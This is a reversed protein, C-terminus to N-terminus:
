ATGSHQARRLDLLTAMEAAAFALEAALKADVGAATICWWDAVRRRRMLLLHDTLLCAIGFFFM